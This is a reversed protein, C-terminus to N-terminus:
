RLQSAPRPARARPLNIASNSVNHRSRSDPATTVPFWCLRRLRRAAGGSRDGGRQRLRLLRQLAVTAGIAAGRAGRTPSPPLARVRALAAAIRPSAGTQGPPSEVPWTPGRCSRGPWAPWVSGWTRLMCALADTTRVAGTKFHRGFNLCWAGVATEETLLDWGRATTYGRRRSQEGPRAPGPPL